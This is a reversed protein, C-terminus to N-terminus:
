VLSRRLFLLVVHERGRGKMIKAQLHKMFHEVRNGIVRENTSFPQLQFKIIKNM